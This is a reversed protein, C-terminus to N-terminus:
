DDEAEKAVNQFQNDTEYEAIHCDVEHGTFGQGIMYDRFKSYNWDPVADKTGMPQMIYLRRYARHAKAWRKDDETLEPEPLAEYSDPSM